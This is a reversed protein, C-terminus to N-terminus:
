VAVSLLEEAHNKGDLEAFKIYGRLNLNFLM